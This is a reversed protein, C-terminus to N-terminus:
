FCWGLGLTLKYPHAHSYPSEYNIIDLISYKFGLDIRIGNAFEYGALAGFGAHTDSLAYRPKGTIDDTSVVRRYPTIFSRDDPCWSYFTFHTFPGAGLRLNGGLAPLVGVFYLPIEMGWLRMRRPADNRTRRWIIFGPDTSSAQYFGNQVLLLLQVEVMLKRTFYYDIFPGGEIGFGPFASMKSESIYMSEGAFNGQVLVGIGVPDFKLSDADQAYAPHSCLLIGLLLLISSNKM